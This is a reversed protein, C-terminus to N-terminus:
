RKGGATFRLTGLADGSWTRGSLEVDISPGGGDAVALTGFQGAGPFAGGSYPGGKVSGPRDLAGAHLLPFGGNRATSYDTNTGDDLAVMHADGSVMVVNRIANGAIVDALRRREDPYAGWDDRSPGAPAIWPDPNVWVVLAHSRSATVLERELWSLQATGLMSTATRESRTDTLIIRVRGVTFAQYIAGGPGAALPHHPVYQRYAARAAPRTPADADANNPGYDHDDWVYAIPVHRYLAAQAPATLTRAYLNGFLSVDNRSPNGYHLDGAEVYLLPDLDRITDYVAGSSGTRACSGFAITFSSAGSPMTRFSGVGRSRDQAGDVEIRYHYETDPALSDVTLTVVHELSPAATAGRRAAGGPTELVLRARRASPVVEATITARDTTVGGSWSWVVRDVPLPQEPSLPHSPGYFHDYLSSAGVATGALLLGTALALVGVARVTRRHQWVLWYGAAPALFAVAVALSVLPHYAVAAIVGLLSGSLALLVAAPAEWRWALIWALLVLGLLGLQLPREVQSALIDGEPNAPVGVVLALVGFGAVAVPVWIRSARRIAKEVRRPVHIVGLHRQTRQASWRCDHCRRHWRRHELIWVSLLVFAGGWLFGAVIDSWWHLGLYVKSLGVGVVGLSLVAAAVWAARRRRTLVLLALPLFGAILTAQMAHGSPFSDSAGALAGYDPRGQPVLVRLVGSLVLGALVSSLYTVAFPVCRLTALGIVAVLGVSVWTAGFLDLPGLSAAFHWGQVTRAAWGDIGEIRHHAAGVVLTFIAAVSFAASVAWGLLPSPGAQAESATTPPQGLPTNVLFPRQWVVTRPWALFAVACVGAVAAMVVSTMLSLAWLWAIDAVYGGPRLYNLTAGVGVYLALGGSSLGALLYSVRPRLGVELATDPPEGTLVHHATSLAELAVRRERGRWRKAHLLDRLVTYLSLVIGVSM